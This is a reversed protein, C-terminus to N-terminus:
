NKDDTDTDDTAADTSDADTGDGDGADADSDDADSDGAGSGGDRPEPSGFSEPTLGAIGPEPHASRRDNERGRDFDFNLFKEFEYAIADGTAEPASTADRAEELAQIYRSMDEDAAAIRDINAEWESAADLLEGRPIVVDLLEELKDLIALTAKPSPASHVYHPVQAWMNLVSIGLEVFALELVTTIGAPGEYSSRTAGNKARQEPDESSLSVPIPRSHPADSFLSGIFVVTDIQWTLVLEVVEETFGLWDRSPEVGALLYIDDARSGDLRRITEEASEETEGPKEVRGLLRTEPWDLVRRGDADFGVKPRHVQYDVFADAGIAHLADADLLEALHQLATTTAAGADSWGEFAVILVRSHQDRQSIDSM